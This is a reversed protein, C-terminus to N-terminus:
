FHDHGGDELGSMRSKEVDVTSPHFNKLTYESPDLSGGCTDVRRGHQPILM